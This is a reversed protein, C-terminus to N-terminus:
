LYHDLSMCINTQAISTTVRCFLGQFIVKSWTWWKGICKWFGIIPESDIVSNYFTIRVWESIPKYLLTGTSSWDWHGVLELLQGAGLTYGIPFFRFTTPYQFLSWIQELVQGGEIKESNNVAFKISRIHMLFGLNWAKWHVWSWWFRSNVLWYFQPHDSMPAFRSVVQFKM